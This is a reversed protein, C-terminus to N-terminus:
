TQPEVIVEGVLKKEHKKSDDALMCEFVSSENHISTLQKIHLEM